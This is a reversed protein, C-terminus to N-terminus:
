RAWSKMTGEEWYITRKIRVKVVLTMTMETVAGGSEQKDEKLRVWQRGHASCLRSFKPTLIATKSSARTRPHTDAYTNATSGEQWLSHSLFRKLAVESSQSRSKRWSVIDASCINFIEVSQLFTEGRTQRELLWKIDKRRKKGEFHLSLPSPCLLKRYTQNKM